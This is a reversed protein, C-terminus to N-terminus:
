QGIFHIKSSQILHLTFLLIGGITLMDYLYVNISVLNQRFITIYREFFHETYKERKIDLIDECSHRVHKWYSSLIDAKIAILTSLLQFVFKLIEFANLM